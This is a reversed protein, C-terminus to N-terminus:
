GFIDRNALTGLGFSVMALYTMRIASLKPRYIMGGPTELALQHFLFFFGSKRVTAVFCTGSQSV